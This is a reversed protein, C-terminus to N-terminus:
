GRVAAQTLALEPDAALGADASRRYAAVFLSIGTLMAILLTLSLADATAGAGHFVHGGLWAVLLPGGTGGILANTLGCLSIAFGRLENPVSGQLVLFFVTALAPYAGLMTALMLIAAPAAPMLAALMTPILLLPMLALLRLRGPAGTRTMIRDVLLGAACPGLLGAIISAPGLLGAVEVIRLGYHRSISVAGWALTAYFGAAVAALGLVLPGLQRRRRLLIRLSEAISLRSNQVTEQRAPERVALVFPAVLLGLLGAAIFAVRWPHLVLPALGPVPVTLDHPLHRLIAGTLIVSLGSSVAQGTLYLGMPRGRRVPPFLDCILSIACPGLTGEGMGVLLRSAFMSWFGNSLGAAVTGLSWVLVGLALLRSRMFRDAGLGLALGITAYFLSFSLGQLLSIQIDSIGLDHRIPDIVLSLVGRDITAVIGVLVILAVM